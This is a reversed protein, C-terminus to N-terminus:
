NDEVARAERLNLCTVDGTASRCYIRGGVFVPMTSSSGGFVKTRSIEIFKEASAEAIILEGSKGSQILLKDGAASLNGAAIGKHEWAVKGSEANLCTLVDGNFGYLHGDRFIPTSIASCLNSNEWVPQTRKGVIRILACKSESTVFVADDGVAVPSARGAGAKWARDWEMTGSEANRGVLGHENRSVVVKKGGIEALIPMVGLSRHRGIRWIESSNSKALKVLSFAPGGVEFYLGKVGLLPSGFVGGVPLTAGRFKSPLSAAWANGGDKIQWGDIRGSPGISYVLNEGIDVAPSATARGDAPQHSYSKSWIESGDELELASIVFRGDKVGTTYAGKAGVVVVADGDGVKARWFVEPTGPPLEEETTGDSRYGREGPWDYIGANRRMWSRIYECDAQSYDSIFSNNERGSHRLTVIGPVAKVLEAEFSQGTKLTYVRKEALMDGPVALACVTCALLSLRNPTRM